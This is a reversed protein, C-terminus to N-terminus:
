AGRRPSANQPLVPRTVEVVNGTDLLDIAEQSTTVHVWGVPAARDVLDDDLWVRIEEGGTSPKGTDM